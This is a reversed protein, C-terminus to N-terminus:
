ASGIPKEDVTIYLSDQILCFCVPVLHPEAKSGVTALHAVRARDLFGRQLDTLM